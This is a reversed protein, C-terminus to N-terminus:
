VYRHVQYRSLVESFQNSNTLVDVQSRSPWKKLVTNRFM